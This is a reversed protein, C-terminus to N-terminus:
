CLVWSCCATFRYLDCFLTHRSRAVKESTVWHRSEYPETM